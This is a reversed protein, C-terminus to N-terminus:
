GKCARGYEPRRMSKTVDDDVAIAFELSDDVAGPSGFGERARAEALLAEYQERLLAAEARLSRM